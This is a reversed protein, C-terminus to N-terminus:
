DIQIRMRELKYLEDNIANQVAEANFKELVEDNECPGPEYSAGDAAATLTHCYSVNATSLAPAKGAVEISLTVAQIVDVGFKGKNSSISCETNDVQSVAIKIKKGNEKLDANVKGLIEDLQKRTADPQAQCLEQQKAVAATPAAVAPAAAAPTETKVPEAAGSASGTTTTATACALVALGLLAVVVRMTQM